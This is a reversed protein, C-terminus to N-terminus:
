KLAGLMLAHLKEVLENATRRTEATTESSTQLQQFIEAGRERFQVAIGHLHETMEHLEQMYEECRQAVKGLEEGVENISKATSEYEKVLAEATLRGVDSVGPKHEVYPPLPTSLPSPTPLRVVSSEAHGEIEIDRQLQDLSIPQREPM